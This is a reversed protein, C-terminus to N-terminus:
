ALRIAVLAENKRSGDRVRDVTLLAGKIDGRAAQAVAIKQWAMEQWPAQSIEQATKRAEEVASAEALAGAILALAVPGSPSPKDKTGPPIRHAVDLAEHLTRVAGTRDGTHLEQKGIAVLARVMSADARITAAAERAAKLDGGAAQAAIIFALAEGQSLDDGKIKAASASAGKLRFQAGHDQCFLRVKYGLQLQAVVHYYL